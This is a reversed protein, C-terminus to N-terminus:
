FRYGVSLYLVEPVGFGVRYLRERTEMRYGITVKPVFRAQFEEADYQTVVAPGLTLEVFSNNKGLLGIAHISAFSFNPDNSGNFLVKHALQAGLILRHDLKDSDLMTREYYLGAFIGLSGYVAQEKKQLEQDVSTTAQGFLSSNFLIFLFSIFLSRIIKM